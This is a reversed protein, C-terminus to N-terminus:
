GTYNAVKAGISNQIVCFECRQKLDHTSGNFTLSHMDNAETQYKSGVVILFFGRWILPRMSFIIWKLILNELHRFRCQFTRGLMDLRQVCDTCDSTGQDVHVLRLNRHVIVTTYPTHKVKNDM